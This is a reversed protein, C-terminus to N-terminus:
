HDHKKWQVCWQEIRDVNQELEELSNSKLEQVINTDYSEMAEDLVVNMIECEVNESRKKANYNRESLQDYLKDTDVRLVVVLDFWREPFLECSHFDVVVGTEDREARREDRTVGREEDSVRREDSM